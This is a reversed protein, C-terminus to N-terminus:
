IHILSLYIEERLIKPISLILNFSYRTEQKAKLITSNNLIKFTFLWYLFISLIMNYFSELCKKTKDFIWVIKLM